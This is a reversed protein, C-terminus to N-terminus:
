QEETHWLPKSTLVDGVTSVVGVYESDWLSLTQPLPWALGRGVQHFRSHSLLAIPGSWGTRYLRGFRELFEQSMEGRKWQAPRKYRVRTQATEPSVGGDIEETEDHLWRNNEIENRIVNVGNGM